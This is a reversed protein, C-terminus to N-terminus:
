GETGTLCSEFIAYGQVIACTSMASTDSIDDCSFAVWIKGSAVTEVPDAFYFDCNAGTYTAATKPSLYAVAGKAPNDKTAKPTIAPINIQLSLGNTFNSLTADVAFTGTGSVTCDVTNNDIGDTVVALKQKDNVQGIQSQHGAIKCGATQQTSVYWAGDATQPVPDSCGAALVPIAAAVFALAFFRM